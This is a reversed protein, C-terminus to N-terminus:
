SFMSSPNVWSLGTFFDLDAWFLVRQELDVRLDVKLVIIIIVKIWINVWTFKHQGTRGTVQDKSPNVRLNFKFVIIIVIVNVHILGFQGEQDTVRAKGLNIRSDCKLVIIIVVKIKCQGRPVYELRVPWPNVRLDPKLIIIIVLKIRVNVRTLLWGWEHGPGQEQDVM